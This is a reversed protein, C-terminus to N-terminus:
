KAIPLTMTISAGKTHDGPVRDEVWIEGGYHDIIRKTLTLGIGTGWYGEKKKAIRQFLNEKLKDSIGMGHDILSIKLYSDEAMSRVVVDVEVVDKPDHKMANHLISYFVDNLMEDAFANLNPSDLDTHIVLQKEPMNEQVLEKAVSLVERLDKAVLESPNTEISIFKKVDNILHTARSVQRVSETVIERTSPLVNEDYLLLEMTGSVAQHINSIDHSMLDVFFEASDRTEVIRQEAMKRETIDLIHMVSGISSGDAARLPYHTFDAHFFGKKETQYQKEENVRDFSFLDEYRVVEGSRFMKNVWDPVNPDKFINFIGIVDELDRIGFQDKAAKNMDVLFGDNDFFEIGIPSQEFIARLRAESEKLAEEATKRETIDQVTGIMRVPRGAEDRYVSAQEHVFKMSGDKLVIRHDISYSIDNELANNVSQQVLERDDPHVFSLFAEYTEEFKRPSLGFIRYIEDSWFLKEETINWDWNGIHAIEQAKALRGESDQLAMVANKRETIDIQAVQLAHGGNYEIPTAYSEVWRTSGDKHIVRYEVRPATQDGELYGAYATVLWELDEPHIRKWIGEPSEAILEEVTDGSVEAYAQNAYVIRGEHMIAIGQLSKEALARYKSESEILALEGRKSVTVDRFSWARGTITGEQILPSTYREFVRGDIFQLTDLAVSSSKYFTQVRERFENPNELQEQVYDVLVKDNATELLEEPIQWLEAFRSNALLVNQDNDVVLIGDDTSELTARLIAEKESLADEAKKRETIDQVTGIMRIPKGKNDFFVEATEHVICKSGDKLVICYDINYSKDEYLAEDVAKMVQGRDDPHIFELFADYTLEFEQPICGFIRYTEDSWSLENKVVDWDWNGLHAMRQAEALGDESERLAEEAIKHEIFSGVNEALADILYREEKLFPGEGKTPKEELYHVELVGVKKGSVTINALQKWPTERFNDTLYKQNQYVARVETIDPYQWAVQILNVLRQLVEDTQLDSSLLKSISYLCTLEKIRENLNHTHKSLDEEAQKKKTIDEVVGIIFLVNGTSDRTVSVTLRGWRMAGDKKLFRKEMSYSNRKGSMIDESLQREVEEDEPPTINFVNLGLLEKKKYGLFEQLTRNAELIIGDSDVLAIGLTTNEFIARFQVEAKRQSSVDRVIIWTGIPRGNEDSVLHMKFVVPLPTGDKCEFEDIHLEAHGEALITSVLSKWRRSPFGLRTFNRVENDTFGIMDKFAKNFELIQGNLDSSVFGDQMSDQLQLYKSKSDQFM